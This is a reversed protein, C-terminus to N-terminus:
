KTESAEGKPVCIAGTWRPIPTLLEVRAAECADQTNFEVDIATSTLTGQDHDGMFIWAILIWKM